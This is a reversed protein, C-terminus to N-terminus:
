KHFVGNFIFLEFTPVVVGVELKVTKVELERLGIFYLYLKPTTFVFFLHFNQILCYIEARFATIVTEACIDSYKESVLIDIATRRCENVVVVLVSLKV